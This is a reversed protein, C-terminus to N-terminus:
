FFVEAPKLSFSVIVQDYLREDVMCLYQLCPYRSWDLTKCAQWSFGSETNKGKSKWSHPPWFQVRGSISGLLIWNYYQVGPISFHSNLIMMNLKSPKTCFFFSLCVKATFVSLVRGRRMSQKDQPIISEVMCVLSQWQGRQLSDGVFMLRKNRIKELM